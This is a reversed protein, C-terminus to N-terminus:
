ESDDAVCPNRLVGIRDIEVECIDGPQLYVPPKRATGVGPPTGTYILDGPELTVVQSIYAMLEEVRFIFQRTNSDQMTRGNLRFRIGLEHPDPIEDSTVLVPGHPGFTDFTKGLLWQRGDKELQWDRASVDHGCTYGAVYDLARDRPIHRGERGVVVVLEAEYDVKQSVRPLRINEEPGIVATPFKNFVVPDSPVKAGTEAAHDRYNLGICIVKQPHPVPAKLRYSPLTVRDTREAAAQARSLVDRGGALLQRISSPLNSDNAALDIAQNGDIAAARLQGDPLQVTALRM